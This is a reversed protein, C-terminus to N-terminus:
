VNLSSLRRIVPNRSQKFSVRSNVCQIVIEHVNNYGCKIYDEPPMFLTLFPDLTGFLPYKHNISLIDRELLYRRVVYEKIFEPQKPIIKSEPLEDWIDLTKHLEGNIEIHSYFSILQGDIERVLKYLHPYKIINDRIQDSTFSCIPLLSGLQDDYEMNEIKEYMKENRTRILCNPYLNMLESDTMKSVDTTVSIDSQRLPIKPLSEFIILKDYGIQGQMWVSKNDFQPVKPGQLYLDTKDTPKVSKNMKKSSKSYSTSSTSQKVVTSSKTSSKNSSSKKVASVNSMNVSKSISEVDAVVPVLDWEVNKDSLYISDLTSKMMDEDLEPINSLPDTTLWDHPVPEQEILCYLIVNCAKLLSDRMKKTNNYHKVGYEIIISLLQSAKAKIPKPMSHKESIDTFKVKM